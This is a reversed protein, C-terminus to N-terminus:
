PEASDPVYHAVLPHRLDFCVCVFHILSSFPIWLVAAFTRFALRCHVSYLVLRREAGLPFLLRIHFLSAAHMLGCVLVFWRSEMASSTFLQRAVALERKTEAFSLRM